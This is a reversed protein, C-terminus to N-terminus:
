LATTEAVKDIRAALRDWARAGIKDQWNCLLHEGKENCVRALALLVDGCTNTDILPELADMLQQQTM